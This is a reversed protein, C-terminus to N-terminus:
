GKNNRWGEKKNIDGLFNLLGKYVHSVRLNPSSTYKTFFSEYRELIQNSSLMCEGFIHQDLHLFQKIIIILEDKPFNELWWRLVKSYDFDSEDIPLIMERDWIFTNSDIKSCADSLYISRFKNRTRNDNLKRDFQNKLTEWLLSYRRSYTPMWAKMDNSIRDFQVGKYKQQLQEREKIPVNDLFWNIVKEYSGKTGGVKNLKVGTHWELGEGEICLAAKDVNMPKRSYQPNIDDGNNISEDFLSGKNDSKNAKDLITSSKEGRSGRKSSYPKILRYYKNNIELKNNIKLDNNIELINNNIELNIKLLDYYKINILNISHTAHVCSPHRFNSSFVKIVDDDFLKILNLKKLRRKYTEIKKDSWGYLRHLSINPCKIVEDEASASKALYYTYMALLNAPDSATLIIKLAYKPTPLIEFMESTEIESSM